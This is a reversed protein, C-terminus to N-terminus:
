DQCISDDILTHSVLSIFNSSSNAGIGERLSKM